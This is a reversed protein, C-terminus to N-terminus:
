FVYKCVAVLSLNCNVYMSSLFFVMCLLCFLVVYMSARLCVANGDCFMPYEMCLYARTAGGKVQNSNPM